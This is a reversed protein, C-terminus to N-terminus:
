QQTGLRALDQHCRALANNSAIDLRARQIAKNIANHQVGVMGALDRLARGSENLALLVIRRRANADAARADAFEVIGDWYRWITELDAGPTRGQLYHWTDLDRRVDDVTCEAPLHAVTQYAALMGPLLHTDSDIGDAIFLIDRALTAVNPDTIAPIQPAAPIPADLDHEDGLPYDPNNARDTTIDDSM